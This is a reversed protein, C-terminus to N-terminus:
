GVIPRAMDPWGITAAVKTFSRCGSGNLERLRYLFDNRSGVWAIGTCGCAAGGRQVM